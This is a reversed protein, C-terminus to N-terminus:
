LVEVDEAMVGLMVEDVALVHVEVIVVVEV